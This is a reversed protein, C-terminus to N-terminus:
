ARKSRWMGRYVIYSSSNSFSSEVLELDDDNSELDSSCCSTIDVKNSQQIELKDYLELRQRSLNSVVQAVQTM